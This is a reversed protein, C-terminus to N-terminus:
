KNAIEARLREEQARAEPTFEDGFDAAEFVPRIEVEFAEDSDESGFPARKVHGWNDALYRARGAFALQLKPFGDATNRNRTACISSLRPSIAM